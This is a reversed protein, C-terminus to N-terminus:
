QAEGKILLKRRKVAARALENIHARKEPTINRRKANIEDKNAHYRAKNAERLKERNAERYAKMEELEKDRNCWYRERAQWNIKERNADRWLKNTLRVKEKNKERWKKANEAEKEKTTQSKPKGVKSKYKRKYLANRQEKPTNELYDRRILIQLRKAEVMEQPIDEYRLSTNNILINKIYKDTLNKIGELGLKKGKDLYWERNLEKHREKVEPRQNYEKAKQRLYEKVEPRAAYKAWCERDKSLDRTARRKARFEETRRSANKRAKQEETYATMYIRKM